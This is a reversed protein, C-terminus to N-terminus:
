CWPIVTLAFLLPWSKHRPCEAFTAEYFHIAQTYLIDPSWVWDSGEAFIGSFTLFFGAFYLVSSVCFVVCHQIGGPWLDPPERSGRPMGSLSFSVAVDQPESPLRTVWAGRQEELLSAGAAPAEVHRACCIVEWTLSHLSNYFLVAIFAKCISFYLAFCLFFFTSSSFPPVLSCWSTHSDIQYQVPICPYLPLGDASGCCLATHTFKSLEHWLTPLGIEMRLAQKWIASQCCLM